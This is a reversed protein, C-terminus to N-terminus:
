GARFISSLDQDRYSHFLLTALISLVFALVGAGLVLMTRGPRSKVIPVEAAEVLVIAPVRTTSASRLLNAREIDEGFGGNATFYQNELIGIIVQGRNIRSMQRSMSDLELKLGDVLTSVYAITDKPIRVNGQMSELRGKNRYYLSQTEVMQRTLRESLEATNYIQFEARLAVLSDGLEKLVKTRAALNEEYSQATAAQASKVLGEAIENIRDRAANALTSAFRADRDEVSLEIAELKTKKVAYLKRFHMRVKYRAKAQEPDIKYQAYLDFSDVLFDILDNSEAIALIRDIDDDSGYLGVGNNSKSFLIEPRAQNPNAALFVTTARYYNPMALSVLATLIMATVTLSLIAKRHAYGAKLADLIHERQEM